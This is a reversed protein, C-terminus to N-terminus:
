NQRHGFKYKLKWTGQGVERFTLRAPISDAYLRKYLELATAIAVLEEEPISTVTAQKVEEFINLREKAPAKEKGALLINFLGVIVGILMLGSFVVVIGSFAVKWGDYQEVNIFGYIRKNNGSKLRMRKIKKMFLNKNTLNSSQLVEIIGKKFEQDDLKLIKQLLLSDKTIKSKDIDKALLLTPIFLIAIILLTLINKLNKM